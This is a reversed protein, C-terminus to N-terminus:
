QQPHTLFCAQPPDFNLASQCGFVFIAKLGMLLHFWRIAFAVILLASFPYQKKEYENKNV